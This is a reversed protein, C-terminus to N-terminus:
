FSMNIDVVRGFESNRSRASGIIKDTSALVKSKKSSKTSSDIDRKSAKTHRGGHPRGSKGSKGSVNPDDGFRCQIAREIWDTNSSVRSYVSPDPKFEPCEDGFTTSEEFEFEGGSAVEEGGYKVTYYGEGQGCCIGDEFFDYITFQYEQGSPVCYNEEYLTFNTEYYDYPRSVVLQNTCLNFLDWSTEDPWNETFIEVELLTM